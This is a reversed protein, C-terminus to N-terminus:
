SNKNFVSKILTVVNEMISTNEWPVNDDANIKIKTYKHSYIGSIIQFYRIRDFM